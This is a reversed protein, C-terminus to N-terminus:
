LNFLTIYLFIFSYGSFSKKPHIDIKTLIKDIELFNDLCNVQRTDKSELSIKLNPKQKEQDVECDM